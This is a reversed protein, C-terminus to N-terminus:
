LFLLEDQPNQNARGYWGVGGGKFCGRSWGEGRIGRVCKGAKNQGLVVCDGVAWM